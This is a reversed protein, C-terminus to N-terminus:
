RANLSKLAGNFLNNFPKETSARICTNCYSCTNHKTFGEKLENWTRYEAMILGCPSLTADPNVVLFREGARCGPISKNKFFEIIDFLFTTTTRVTDHKRKFDIVRTITDEFEPMENEPIMFSMDNTRLWTYPSFNIAVGWDRALKCMPIMERFNRSHVVCNLTIVNGNESNVAKVLTRIHEFLGPISRFEDHREDPYDLSVSFLDVGTNRLRHYIEETLLSANTVFIIYPTGNPQKLAEIIEYVDKRLLPEGGSIQIVLPKLEHFKESFEEPAARKKDVEGGRHCHKCRANCNHTIEFSVCLPRNVLYNTVARKALSVTRVFSNM